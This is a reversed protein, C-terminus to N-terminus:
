IHILSLSFAEVVTGTELQRYHQRGFAKALSGSLLILTMTKNTDAPM